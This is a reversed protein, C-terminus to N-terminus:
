LVLHLIQILEPSKWHLIWYYILNSNKLLWSMGTLWLYILYIKLKDFAHGITCWTKSIYLYAREFTILFSPKTNSPLLPQLFLKNGCASRKSQGSSKLHLWDFRENFFPFEINPSSIESFWLLREKCFPNNESLLNDQNSVDVYTRKDPSVTKLLQALKIPCGSLNQPSLINEPPWEDFKPIMM